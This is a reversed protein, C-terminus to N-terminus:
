LVTVTAGGAFEGAVIPASLDFCYYGPTAIPSPCRRSMWRVALTGPMVSDPAGGAAVWQDYIRELYDLYDASHVALIPAIGFSRPPEIPGLRARAVAAHIIAARRPTEFVPVLAGDLFEFPPDHAAHGPSFVSIM